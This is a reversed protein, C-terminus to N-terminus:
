CPVFRLSSLMPTVSMRAVLWEVRLVFREPAPSGVCQSQSASPVPVPGAESASGDTERISQRDNNGIMMVILNPKEAAIIERAVQLVSDRRRDYRILGSDTRHKRVIGIEPKESAADELEFALWDANADGMVVIKVTADNSPTAPPAHSYDPPQEKEVERPRERHRERQRSSLPRERQRYGGYGWQRDGGSGWLSQVAAARLSQVATATAAPARGM